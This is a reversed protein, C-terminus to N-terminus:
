NPLLGFSLRWTDNIGVSLQIVPCDCKSVFKRHGMNYYYFDNLGEFNGPGEM